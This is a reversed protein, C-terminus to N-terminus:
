IGLDFSPSDLFELDKIKPKENSSSSKAKLQKSAQEELADFDIGQYFEDDDDFADVQRANAEPDLFMEKELNCIPLPGCDTLKQRKADNAPGNTTSPIVNTDSFLRSTNLHSSSDANTHLFPSPTRDDDAEDMPGM